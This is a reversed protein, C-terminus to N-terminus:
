RESRHLRFEFVADSFYFFLSSRIFGSHDSCGYVQLSFIGITPIDWKGVM